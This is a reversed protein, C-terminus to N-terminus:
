GETFDFSQGYVRVERLRSMKITRYQGINMDWVILNGRQAPDYSLGTGVLNKRVGFRFRGTRTSGDAKTFTAGFIRHGVASRFTLLDHNM